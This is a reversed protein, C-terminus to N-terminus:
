LNIGYGLGFGATSLGVRFFNKGNPKQYRYGLTVVPNFKWHYDTWTYKSYLLIPTYALGFKTEFHHNKKGTFATFALHAGFSAYDVGEFFITTLGTTYGLHFFGKHHIKEYSLIIPNVGTLLSSVYLSASSTKEPWTETQQAQVPSSIALIFGILIFVSNKKMSIRSPSYFQTLLFVFESPWFLEIAQRGGFEPPWDSLRVCLCGSLGATLM